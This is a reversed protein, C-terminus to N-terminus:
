IFTSHFWAFAESREGKGLVLVEVGAGILVLPLSCCHGQCVCGAVKSVWLNGCARGWLVRAPTHGCRRHTGKRVVMVTWTDDITSTDLGLVNTHLKWSLVTYKIHVNPHVRWRGFIAM